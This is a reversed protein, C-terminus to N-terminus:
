ADLSGQVRVLEAWPEPQITIAEGAVISEARAAVAGRGGAAAPSAPQCGSLCPLTWGIQALIVLRLLPPM